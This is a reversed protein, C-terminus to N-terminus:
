ARRAAEIAFQVGAMGTIGREALMLNLAAVGAVGYAGEVSAPACSIELAAGIAGQAMYHPSITVIGEPTAVTRVDKGHDAKLKRQFERRVARPFSLAQFLDDAAHWPFDAGQRPSRFFRVPTGLIDATHLVSTLKTM